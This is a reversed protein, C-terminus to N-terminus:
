AIATEETTSSQDSSQSDWPPAQEMTPLAVHTPALAQDVGPDRNTPNATQTTGPGWHPYATQTSGSGWNPNASQTDGSGRDPNATPTDGSGWNPTATQAPPGPLARQRLEKPLLGQSISPVPSVCKDVLNAINPPQYAATLDGEM